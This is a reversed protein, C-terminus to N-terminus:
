CWGGNGDRAWRVWGGVCVHRPSGAARGFQAGPVGWCKGGGWGNAERPFLGVVSISAESESQPYLRREVCTENRPRAGGWAEAESAAGASERTM